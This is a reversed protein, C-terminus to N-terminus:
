ECNPPPPIMEEMEKLITKSKEAFKKNEGAIGELVNQIAMEIFTEFYGQRDEEVIQDYDALVKFGEFFPARINIKMGITKESSM